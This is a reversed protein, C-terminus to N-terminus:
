SISWCGTPFTTFHWGTSFSSKAHRGGSSVFVVEGAYGPVYKTKEDFTVVKCKVDVCLM